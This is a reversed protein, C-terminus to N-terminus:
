KLHVKAALAFPDQTIDNIVLQGDALAGQPFGNSGFNLALELTGRAFDWRAKLAREGVQEVKGEGLRESGLLPFVFDRRFALCHRTLSLWAQADQDESWSLKSQAFTEPKNPDPVLEGKAAIEAFEKARGRSVAQGLEGHYDAFYLFPATEGREEGMFIMPIYPVALLLAYGIKVAEPDALTILRDGHARNGVQDHNQVCNVFATPPLHSSPLGRPEDRGERAQGEEIHGRRLSLSLDGIPDVAFSAYYSQSEGTLATHIAHHFDDNWSADYGMERLQPENREDETVLHLPHGLDLSHIAAVFDAMFQDAGPGSIQHVADLRLGDLGYDRLWMSACQIWFNKVAKQGFDIAAGWPTHRDPNFFPPAVAHIYSGEPGFHNMVLDLLVMLNLEHARRVFAKFDEPTGYAPHPAFPLVGDYGWGRQGSWQGIPMVEIATIGLGALEELKEAAAAFTGEHTFTGVHLEYIVAEHWPRGPWAHGPARSHDVLLSPGHVDGQQQRAAPDHFPLGDVLLRYAMGAEAKVTGSWWGDGDHSLPHSRGELEVDVQKASPAWLGIAWDGNNEPVAGWLHTM